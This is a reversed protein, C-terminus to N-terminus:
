AVGKSSTSTAIIRENIFITKFFYKFNLQDSSFYLYDVNKYIEEADIIKTLQVLKCKKCQMLEIPFVPDKFKIKKKEILSNVLPHNGLNIVKFFKTSECMRCTINKITKIKSTM